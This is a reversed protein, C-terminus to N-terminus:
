VEIIWDVTLTNLVDRYTANFEPPAIQSFSSLGGPHETFTDSDAHHTLDRSYVKKSFLKYKRENNLADFAYPPNKGEALLTKMDIYWLGMAYIGGYLAAAGLDGGSVWTQYHIEGTSSFDWDAVVILGGYAGHVARYAASDVDVGASASSVLMNIFGSPDM